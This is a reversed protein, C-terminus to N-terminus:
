GGAFALCEDLDQLQALQLLTSLAVDSGIEGLWRAAIIREVLQEGSDLAMRVLHQVDRSRM